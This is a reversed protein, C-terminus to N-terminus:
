VSISSLCLLLQAALGQVRQAAHSRAPDPRCENRAVALVANCWRQGSAHDHSVAAELVGRVTGADFGPNPAGSFDEIDGTLMAGLIDSLTKQLNNLRDAINKRVSSFRTM